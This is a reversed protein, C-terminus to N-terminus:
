ISEEKAEKHIRCPPCDCGHKEAEEWTSHLACYCSSAESAEGSSDGDQHQFFYSEKYEREKVAHELDKLRTGVDTLMELISGQISILSKLLADISEQRTKEVAVAKDIACEYCNSSYGHICNM